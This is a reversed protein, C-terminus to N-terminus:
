LSSSFVAEFDAQTVPRPNSPHCADQFALEALRKLDSAQVGKKAPGEPIAVRKKLEKLWALFDEPRHVKLGAAQCLMAFREPVASINFKLAHDIILGNALGHHLDKLASLAHACSHVIGLGKQFAIAGMMSAMMMSGRAEIDGPKEVCQALSQSALRLGELAIGDCIPHYGKALYAEVCHTLADMGTAATAPGPLGLTLEPDAFVAKALLKPDFIIKKVHTQDDSIVASRGVESGTGSTTPLAVWFPIERNVPLAGPKDDEYDFLDGPHNAMLAIAKAVDLAVGGGLGIISDAKHNRFAQVGVGV